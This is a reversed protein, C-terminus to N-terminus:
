LLKCKTTDTTCPQNSVKSRKPHGTTKKLGTARMEKLKWLHLLKHGGRSEHGSHKLSLEEQLLKIIEQASCLEM